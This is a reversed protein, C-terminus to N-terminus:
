IGLCYHKVSSELAHIISKPLLMCGKPRSEIQLDNLIQVFGIIYSSIGFSFWLYLHVPGINM